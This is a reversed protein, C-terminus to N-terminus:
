AGPFTSDFVERVIRIFDNVVKSRPQHAPLVMAFQFPVSPVLPRCVVSPDRLQATTLPDAM